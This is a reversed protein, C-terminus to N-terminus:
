HTFHQGMHDNHHKQNLNSLTFVLMFNHRIERTHPDVNVILEM